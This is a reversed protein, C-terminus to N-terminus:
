IIEKLILYNLLSVKLNKIKELIPLLEKIANAIGGVPLKLRMNEDTNHIGLVQILVREQLKPDENSVVKAIKIGKLDADHSLGFEEGLM